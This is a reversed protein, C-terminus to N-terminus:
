LLVLINLIVETALRSEAVSTSFALPSTLFFFHAHSHEHCACNQQVRSLTKKRTGLTKAWCMEVMGCPSHRQHRPKMCVGRRRMSLDEATVVIIGGGCVCTRSRGIVSVYKPSSLMKGDKNTECEVSNFILPGPATIDDLPRGRPEPPMDRGAGDPRGIPPCRSGRGIPAGTPVRLPPWILLPGRCYLANM